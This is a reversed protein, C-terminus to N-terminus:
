LLIRINSLGKLSLSTIMLKINLKTSISPIM